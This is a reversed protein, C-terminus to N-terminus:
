EGLPSRSDLHRLLRIPKKMSRAPYRAGRVILRCAAGWVQLRMESGVQSVELHTVGKSTGDLNVWNGVLDFAVPRLLLAIYM